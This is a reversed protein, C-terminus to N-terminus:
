EVKKKKEEVTVKDGNRLEKSLIRYSGTVVDENEGVGNVIEIHTDDSIGTIVERVEAIGDKIVFVIEVPEEKEFDGNTETEVTEEPRNNGNTNEELESPLRATVAQIPIKVVNDKRRTKIEVSASMGPRLKEIKDMVAVKVEFNTVEEQTGRGRTLASHAIETVKGSFVTDPFADIEIDAEDGIKVNVVDNEDIECLVEMKTLDAVTMIVTGQSFGTGLVVEGVESNLISITGEMPATITTKDLDDKAQDLLANVQSIQELNSENQAKAVLYDSQIAQLDAESTLGSDYLKQTRDLDNKLKTMRAKSLEANAEASKLNAAHQDVAAQYKTRDLQVLFQGQNVYDGELVGLKLIQASVYASINVETEPQIRGSGAVREIITGTEAKEATVNTTKEGKSMNAVVFIVLIIIVVSAILLKKKGSM